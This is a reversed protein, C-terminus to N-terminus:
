KGKGYSPLRVNIGIHYVRGENQDLSELEHEGVEYMDITIEPITRGYHQMFKESSTPLIRPPAEDYHDSPVQSAAPRHSNIPTFATYAYAPSTEEHDFTEYQSTVRDPIRAAGRRPKRFPSHHLDGHRQEYPTTNGPLTSRMSSENQLSTPAYWLPTNGADILNLAKAAARRAPKSDAM